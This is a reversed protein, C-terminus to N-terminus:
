PRADERTPRHRDRVSPVDVFPSEGAVGQHQLADARARQIFDDKGFAEVIHVAAKRSRRDRPFLQM